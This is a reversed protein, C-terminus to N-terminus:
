RWPRPSRRIRVLDRLGEHFVHNSIYKRNESKDEFAYHMSRAIKECAALQRINSIGLGELTELMGEKVLPSMNGVANVELEVPGLAAVGFDIVQLLTHTRPHVLINPACLDNHLLVDPRERRNELYEDVMDRVFAADVGMLQKASAGNLAQRVNRANPKKIRPILTKLKEAGPMEFAEATDFIFTGLALGLNRSETKSLNYMDDIGLFVGEVRPMGIYARKRGVITVPPVPAGQRYLHQQVLAERRLATAHVHDVAGKFFTNGIRLVHMADDADSSFDEVSLGSYQPNEECIVRLLDRVHTTARRSFRPTLRPPRTM